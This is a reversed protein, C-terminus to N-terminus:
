GNIFFDFFTIHDEESMMHIAFHTTRFLTVSFVVHDM